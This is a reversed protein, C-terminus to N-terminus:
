TSDFIRDAAGPRKGELRAPAAEVIAGRNAGRNAGRRRKPAGACFYDDGPLLEHFCDRRGHPARRNDASPRRPPYDIAIFRSLQLTM